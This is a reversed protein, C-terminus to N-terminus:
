AREPRGVALLRVFRVKAGGMKALAEAQSEKSGDVYHQAGLKTALERKSDSQSLAVVEFGMKSAYQVALHGVTNQPHYLM